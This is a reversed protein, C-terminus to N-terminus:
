WCQRPSRGLGACRTLVVLMLWSEVVNLFFVYLRGCMQPPCSFSFFLLLFLFFCFLFDRGDDLM